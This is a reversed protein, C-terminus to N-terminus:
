DPACHFEYHVQSILLRSRQLVAYIPNQAAANRNETGAANVYRHSTSM